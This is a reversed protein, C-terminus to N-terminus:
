EWRNGIRSLTYSHDRHVLVTCDGSAHSMIWLMAAEVTDFTLM